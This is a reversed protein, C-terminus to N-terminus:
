ADITNRDPELYEHTFATNFYSAFSNNGLPFEKDSKPPLSTTDSATRRTFLVCSSRTSLMVYGRCLQCVSKECVPTRAFSEVAYLLIVRLAFCESSVEITGLAQKRSPLISRGVRGV